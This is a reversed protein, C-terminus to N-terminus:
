ATSVFIGLDDHPALLKLNGEGWAEGEERWESVLQEGGSCFGM